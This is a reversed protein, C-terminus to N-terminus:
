SGRREVTGDLKKKWGSRKTGQLPRGKSQRQSTPVIHNTAVARIKKAVADDEANKKPVCWECTVDLNQWENTGGNELALMHEVIWTDAPGLKRKCKHCRGGRELFLRAREQDTLTERVNTTFAHVEGNPGTSRPKKTM